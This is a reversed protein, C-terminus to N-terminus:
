LEGKITKVKRELSYFGVVSIVTLATGIIKSVTPVDHLFVVSFFLTFFVKCFRLLEIAVISSANRVGHTLFIRYIFALLAICNVCPCTLISLSFSRRTFLIVISYVTFLVFEVGMAEVPDKCQRCYYRTTIDGFSSLIVFSILFWLYDIHFKSYNAIVFGFLSLLVYKVYDSRFREKLLFVALMWTCLPRIIGSIAINSIQIFGMMFTKYCAAIIPIAFLFVKVLEHKDSFTHSIRFKLKNQSKLHLYMVIFLFFNIVNVHLMVDIVQSQEVPIFRYRIFFVCLVDSLASTMMAIIYNWM